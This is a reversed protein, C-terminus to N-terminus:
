EDAGGDPLNDEAPPADKEQGAQPAHHEHEEHWGTIMGKVLSTLSDGTSGLYMHVLLFVSGFFALVTHGVAMIWVSGIGLIKSPLVDPVLLLVGTACILPVLGFMVADYALQQMPNFKCEENSPFPHPEGRMIGVLYFRVQLLVRGILGQLPPIYHKWNGSVLNMFVFFLWLGTLVLGAVNHIYTALQFSIVFPKDVDAFHMSIGTPILVMFTLANLWHWIRVWLPYLYHRTSM